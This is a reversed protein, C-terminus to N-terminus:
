DRKVKFRINSTTINKSQNNTKTTKILKKKFLIKNIIICMDV